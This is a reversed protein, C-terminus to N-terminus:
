NTNDNPYHILAAAKYAESAPAIHNFCGLHAKGHQTWIQAVFKRLRKNFTVGTPLQPGFERGARNIVNVRPSCARLNCRRNDLKRRNIHDTHLGQPTRAITRHMSISMGSKGAGTIAYGMSHLRWSQKNLEEFDEDDVIAKQETNSLTIERM